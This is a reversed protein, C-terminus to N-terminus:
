KIRALREREQLRQAPSMKNKRYRTVPKFPDEPRSSTSLGFGVSSSAAMAMAAAIVLSKNSM